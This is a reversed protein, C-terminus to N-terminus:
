DFVNRANLLKAQKLCMWDNKEFNLKHNQHLRNLSDQKQQSHLCVCPAVCKTKRLAIRDFPQECCILNIKSTCKLGNFFALSKSVSKRELCVGPNEPASIALTQLSAAIYAALFLCEKTFFISKSIAISLIM